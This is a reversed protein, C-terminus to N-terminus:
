GVVSMAKSKVHSLTHIYIIDSGTIYSVTVRDKQMDPENLNVSQFM